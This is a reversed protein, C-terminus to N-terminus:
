YFFGDLLGRRLATFSGANQNSPVRHCQIEARACCHRAPSALPRSRLDTPMVDLSPFAIELEAPSTPHLQFEIIFCLKKGLRLWAPQGPAAYRSIQHGEYRRFLALSSTVAWAGAADDVLGLHADLSSEM